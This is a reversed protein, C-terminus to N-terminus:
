ERSGSTFMKLDENVFQSPKWGDILKDTVFADFAGTAIGAATSLGGTFLTDLAVGAGTFFLFRMSKGPTSSLWNERTVSDLYESVLSTDEPKDGLWERFREAKEVLPLLEDFSREGSRIVEGLNKGQLVVEQFEALEAFSRNGLLSRNGVLFRILDCTVGSVLIESEYSAALALNLRAKYFHDLVRAVTFASANPNRSRLQASFDALPLNTDVRIGESSHEVDFVIKEVASLMAYKELIAGIGLNVYEPNKLDHLAARNVAQNEPFLDNIRGSSASRLLRNAARRGKGPRSEVRRIADKVMEQPSRVRGEPGKAKEWFIFDFVKGQSGSSEHTAAGDMQLYLDLFGDEVMRLTTDVGIGQFLATLDNENAVLFIKKYFLLAEALDGLDVAHEPSNGHLLISDLM